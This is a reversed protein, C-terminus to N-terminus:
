SARANEELKRETLRMIAFCDKPQLGHFKWRGLPIIEIRGTHKFTLTKGPLRHQGIEHLDAWKHSILNGFFSRSEICQESWRVVPRLMQHWFLVVAVLCFVLIVIRSREGDSRILALLFVIAPLGIIYVLVNIAKFLIPRQVVHWSEDEFSAM